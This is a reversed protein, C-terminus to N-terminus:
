KSTTSATQKEHPGQSWHSPFSADPVQNQIKRPDYKNDTRQSLLYSFLERLVSSSRINLMTLNKPGPEKKHSILQPLFMPSCLIFPSFPHCCHPSTVKRKRTFKKNKYQLNSYLGKVSNHHSWTHLLAVCGYMCMHGHEGLSWERGAQWM